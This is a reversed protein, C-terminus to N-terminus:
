KGVCFSSFVVDLINEVDVRGILEDLRVVGRHINDAAYEYRTPGVGLEKRAEAIYPIAASVALRQRMRAITAAGRARADLVDFIQDMLAEVGVGTLGSVQGVNGLDAKGIVVIDGDKAPLGADQGDHSLLFVRLDAQEARDLARGVGLKEVTDETERLGATDLLTVPLGKLDMRVEIIDRTTGPIESTLAADRRAIANLLTSKGVNPRGVIAVEFGERIREAVAAGSIETELDDLVDSLLMEAEPGVNEPVEEDAFDMSAELLASARILSTRWKEVLTGLEGSLLRLAQQRQADTEAEILDALGEVQAMDLRDNEFAQRTFEGAEAPRLDDMAGLEALVAAVVAQSGHVQFEAVDEGTFSQNEPFFLVLGTDLHQGSSGVLRRLVARRAPAPAASLRLVTDHAKPGSVRIVSVGAKGSASSLSFITEM